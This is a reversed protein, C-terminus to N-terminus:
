AGCAAPPAGDPLEKLNHLQRAGARFAELSAPSSDVQWDLTDKSEREYKGSNFWVLGMVRPYDGTAIKDFGDRIWAAKDGGGETSSVEAILIPQTTERSVHCYADLFITDWTQWGWEAHSGWNYGDIAVYDVYAAGPYPGMFSTDRGVSYHNVAWVFKVGGRCRADFADHIKIWAARYTENTNPHNGAPDVFGIGWWFWGGNFEHMTRLLIPQQTERVTRCVGAAFDALYEDLTPNTGDRLPTRKTGDIIDRTTFAHPEWSLQPIAGKGAIHSLTHSVNDYPTYWDLFVDVIDLKTGTQEEFDHIYPDSDTPWGGLSAGVLARESELAQAGHRDPRGGGTFIYYLGALVLTLVVAVRLAGGLAKAAGSRPPNPDYAAM